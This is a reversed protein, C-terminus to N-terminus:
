SVDIPIIKNRIKLYLKIDTTEIRNLLSPVEFVKADTLYSPTINKLRTQYSNGNYTYTVIAFDDYFKKQTNKYYSTAEDWKIEDRIIIVANGQSPLVVDNSITCQNEKICTKYSFPYNSDVKFYNLKYITNGLMTNTLPIEESIKKSSVKEVNTINTPKINIIKYSPVLKGNKNKLDSLIKMKYKSKIDDKDLEYVFVYDDSSKPQLEAGQYIKGIDQFRSSRDYQPYLVQDGIFIRFNDKSISAPNNTKNTIGIKVALFYHDEDIIIGSQDVDTIYSEKLTMTFSDLAFSEHLNYRKNYVQFNLYISIFIGIIAVLGLCTFVFKNELVYYKLERLYHVVNKKLTENGSGFRLEVEEEDEDTVQLGINSDFKLTKVNFGLGKFLTAVVLIYCPYPLVSTFDKVFGAFTETLNGMEIQSMASYVLMTSALLIIYFIISISYYTTPKKKSRMLLYIIANVIILVAIALYIFLTIYSGAINVEATQYNAIIYDRFFRTIDNFKFALYIIPVLLLLHIIKFHRILFAYPKKIIM